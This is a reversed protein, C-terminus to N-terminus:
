EEAKKQMEMFKRSILKRMSRSEIVGIVKKDSDIVPLCELYFKDCIRKATFVSDDPGCSAVVPTMLDFALLFNNLESEMFTDRISNITVVGKLTMDRDVVPYYLNTHESFIKLINRLPMEPHLLPIDTDMLERVKCKEMLEEETINLGTEGSQTFARKAFAPGALEVLLTTLTIIIVITDGIKGPFRHAVMISFGIAVGAQSFLCFPIYKKVKDSAGALVAGARSGYMKGGTRAVLYVVSMALLRPTINAIELKAGFLVFFLIYIPPAFKSVIEFAEKSERPIINTVVIGMAMASLLIDVNLLLSLGLVLLIAGLSFALRRDDEHYRSLLRSLAGGSFSGLLISGTIEFVPRLISAGVGPASSSLLTEAVSAAIAFLALAVADDMAVIGFVTSTLAGRTKYEWMINSTVAPATASSISGLLIGLSVSASWDSTMLYSAATILISVSLFSAISESFMIYLVQRGYKMFAERNLSGGITFGVLGLAFYNFPQMTRITDIDIFRIGTEGLIIGMVIYGVVQPIRIKQFLRGFIAGGSLAFGLLLLINVHVQTLGFFLNQVQEQL